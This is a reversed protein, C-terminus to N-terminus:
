PLRRQFHFLTERMPEYVLCSHTGQPGQLQFEDIAVRIYSFGEHSPNANIILKSKMTEGSADTDLAPIKISVYRPGPSKRWRKFKLNEALWVTSGAGFGLKAITKFRGDLIEGPQTPHFYRLRDGPLLEEDIPTDILHATSRPSSISFHRNRRAPMGSPRKQWLLRLKAIASASVM